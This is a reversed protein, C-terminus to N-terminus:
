SIKPRRRSVGVNRPNQESTQFGAETLATATPKRRLQADPNTPITTM